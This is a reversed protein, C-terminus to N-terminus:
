EKNPINPQSEVVYQQQERFIKLAYKVTEDLIERHVHDALESVPSTLSVSFDTPTPKRIYGLKYERISFTGDTILSFTRNESKLRLVKAKDGKLFPKNFPDELLMDLSAHKAEVVRAKIYQTTDCTLTNTIVSEYIPIWFVDSYNTPGSTILTNPTTITYSNDFFGTGFTTFTTYNVLEGLDQIRKETEEFGENLRNSKPGYKLIILDEEVKSKMMGLETLNIFPAGFTNGEDYQFYFQDLFQQKTM